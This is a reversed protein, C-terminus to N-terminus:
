GVVHKLKNTYWAHKLILNSNEGDLTLLVSLVYLHGISYYRMTFIYIGFDWYLYRLKISIALYIGASTMNAYIVRIGFAFEM